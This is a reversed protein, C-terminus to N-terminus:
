QQKLNLIKTTDFDFTRHPMNKAASENFAKVREESSKGYRESFQITYDYEDKIRKSIMETWAMTRGVDEMVNRVALDTNLIDYTLLYLKNYIIEQLQHILKIRFDNEYVRGKLIARLLRDFMFAYNGPNPNIRRIGLLERIDSEFAEQLQLSDSIAEFFFTLNAMSPFIIENLIDMKTNKLTKSRKKITGLEKWQSNSLRNALAEIATKRSELDSKEKM